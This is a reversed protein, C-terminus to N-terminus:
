VGRLVTARAVRGLGVIYAATRWSVQRSQVLGRITAYSDCMTHRLRENV